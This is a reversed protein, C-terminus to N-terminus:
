RTDCILAPTVSNRLMARGDDCLTAIFPDIEGHVDGSGFIAVFGYGPKFEVVASERKRTCVNMMIDDAELSEMRVDAFANLIRAALRACDPAAGGVASGGLIFACALFSGLARRVISERPVM